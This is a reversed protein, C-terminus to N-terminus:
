QKKSDPKKESNRIERQIYWCAKGLDQVRKGKADCRWIYKLANGLNFGLNLQEIVDICEVGSLQNYHQPHNVQENSSKPKKKTNKM